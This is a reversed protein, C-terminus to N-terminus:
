REQKPTCFHNQMLNFSQTKKGPPCLRMTESICAELYPMDKIEDYTVTDMSQCVNKIEQYVKEQIEPYVALHYCTLGLVNSSTDYGALMFLVMEGILEDETLKHGKKEPHQADLM